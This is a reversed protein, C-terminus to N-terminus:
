AQKRDLVTFPKTLQSGYGHESLKRTLVNCLGVMQRVVVPNKWDTLETEIIRKSTHFYGTQSQGGLGKHVENQEETLTQGHMHMDAQKLTIPKALFQATFSSVPKDKLRQVPLRLAVAIKAEEIGLQSARQRIQKVQYSSYRVGHEANAAVAELFFEQDSGMDVLVASIKKRGAKRHARARHEGDVITMTKRDVKIPPFKSGGLLAQTYNEVAVMDVAHRPYLYSNAKLDNLELVVAEETM